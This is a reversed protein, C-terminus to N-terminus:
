MAVNSVITRKALYPWRQGDIQGLKCLKGVLWVLCLLIDLDVEATATGFDAHCTMDIFKTSPKGREPLNLQM